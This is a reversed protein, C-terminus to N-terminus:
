GRFFWRGELYVGIWTVISFAKIAKGVSDNNCRGNTARGELRRATGEGDWSNEKGDEELAAAELGISEGGTMRRDSSWGLQEGRRRRGSEIRKRREIAAGIQDGRIVRAFYEKHM